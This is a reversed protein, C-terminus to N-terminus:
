RVEFIDFVVSRPHRTGVGVFLRSTPASLREAATRGVDVPPGVEVGLHLFSRLDPPLTV